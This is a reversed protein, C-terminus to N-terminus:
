WISIGYKNIWGDTALSKPWKWRKIIIFLAGIFMGTGWTHRSAAKGGGRRDGGQDLGDDAPIGGLRVVVVGKERELGSEM